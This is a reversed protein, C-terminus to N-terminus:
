SCPGDPRDGTDVGHTDITSKCNNEENKKGKRYLHKCKYWLIIIGASGLIAGERICVCPKVGAIM